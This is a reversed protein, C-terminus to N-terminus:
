GATNNLVADAMDNSPASENQRLGTIISERNGAPQNQSLKFKGIMGVVDIEIGVIFSVRHEIFEDPADSVSWPRPQSSEHENTLEDLLNRLWVPDDISRLRGQAHVTEYNWTPVVKGTEKKSAYWNPSIYHQLGQFVVLCDIGSTAKRWLPNSRAVHGLLKGKSQADARLTLPIHDAALGSADAVFITALSHARIFDHLVDTRTEEFHKPTYM